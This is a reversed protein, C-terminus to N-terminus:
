TTWILHREGIYAKITVHHKGCVCKLAGRPIDVANLLVLPENLLSRLEYSVPCKVLYQLSV